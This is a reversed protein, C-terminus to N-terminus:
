SRQSSLRSLNRLKDLKDSDEYEDKFGILNGFVDQVYIANENRSLVVKM